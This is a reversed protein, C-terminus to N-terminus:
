SISVNTMQLKTRCDDGNYEVKFDIERVNLHPMLNTKQKSFTHENSFTNLVM